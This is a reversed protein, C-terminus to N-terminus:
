QKSTCIIITKQGLLISSKGGKERWKKICSFRGEMFVNRSYVKKVFLHKSVMKKLLSASFKYVHTPDDSFSTRGASGRITNYMDYLRKIPYNPTQLILFGGPKLVRAAELLMKEPTEMHEIVDVSYITDFMNDEFPLEYASAALFHGNPMNVKAREIVDPSYDIGYVEEAYSAAMKAHTGDGCGIDLIKGNVYAAVDKMPFSTAYKNDTYTDWFNPTNEKHSNNSM